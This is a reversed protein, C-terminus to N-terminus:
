RTLVEFTGQTLNSALRYATRVRGVDFFFVGEDGNGYSRSSWVVRRSTKEFIKVSFDVIPTGMADQYDFVTGSLVLDVGLSDEGSLIDSNALSPGAQMIIRYRLLEERVRGPEIVSFVESRTLQNVFHLMAIRGAHKRESLNLFPVVAVSYRASTDIIPSRFFIRPTYRGAVSGEAPLVTVEPRQDCEYFEGEPFARIEKRAPPVSRALLDVLDHVATELLLDSDEIRGLGLLGPSDEGSVGVGDMWVIEPQEGSLVLRAILAVMPPGALAQYGELSTILFAGAGAEERIALSAESSLGGTHRVRYRRMFRELDEEALLQLGKEELNLRLLGRIGELPAGLGTLNELPL